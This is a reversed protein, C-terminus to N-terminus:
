LNNESFILMAPLPFAFLTVFDEGSSSEKDEKINLLEPNFLTASFLLYFLGLLLYSFGTKFLPGFSGQALIIFQM